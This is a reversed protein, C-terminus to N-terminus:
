QSMAVIEKVKREYEIINKTYIECAEKNAPSNVNPYNLLSRVSILISM